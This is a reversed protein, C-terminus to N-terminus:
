VEQCEDMWEHFLPLQTMAPFTRFHHNNLRTNQNQGGNAYKPDPKPTPVEKNEQYHKYAMRVIIVIIIILALPVLVGLAIAATYNDEKTYALLSIHV